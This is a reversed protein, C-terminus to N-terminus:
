SKRVTVVEKPVMILLIAPEQQNERDAAKPVVQLLLRLEGLLLIYKGEDLTPLSFMGLDDTETDHLLKGREPRVKGSEKEGSVKNAISWVQVNMGELTRREQERDELVVIKGRLTAKEMVVPIRWRKSSDRSRAAGRTVLGSFVVVTALVVWRVHKM